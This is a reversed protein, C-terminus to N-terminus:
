EAGLSNTGRLDCRSEYLNQESTACTVEILTEETSDLGLRGHIHCPLLGRCSSPLPFFLLVDNVPSLESLTTDVNQIYVLLHIFATSCLACFWAWLLISKSCMLPSTHIMSAFLSCVAFSTPVIQEIYPFCSILDTALIM